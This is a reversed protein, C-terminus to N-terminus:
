VNSDSLSESSWLGTQVGSWILYFRQPHFKHTLIKKLNNEYSRSLSGHFSHKKNSHILKNLMYLCFCLLLYYNTSLPFYCTSTLITQDPSVFDLQSSHPLWLVLSALTVDCWPQPCIDVSLSHCGPSVAPIGSWVQTGPPAPCGELSAILYLSLCSCIANSNLEQARWCFHSPLRALEWHLEKWGSCLTRRSSSRAAGEM